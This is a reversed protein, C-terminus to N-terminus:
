LGLVGPRVGEVIRIVIKTVGAQHEIRWRRGEIDIYSTSDGALVGSRVLGDTLPKTSAILNDEDREARTPVVFTTEYVSAYAIPRSCKRLEPEVRGNRLVRRARVIETLPWDAQGAEIMAVMAALHATEEWKDIERRAAQWNGPRANPTPPKGPIEVTLTRVPVVARGEAAASRAVSEDDGAQLAPDIRAHRVSREHRGTFTVDRM